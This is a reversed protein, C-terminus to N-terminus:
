VLHNALREEHPLEVELIDVSGGPPGLDERIELGSVAVTAGEPPIEVRGVGGTVVVAYFLARRFQRGEPGVRAVQGGLAATGWGEGGDDVLASATWVLYTLSTNSRAPTSRM